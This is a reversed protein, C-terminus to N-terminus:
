YPKFCKLTTKSNQFVSLNLSCQIQSSSTLKKSAQRLILRHDHPSLKINRRTKKKIGYNYGKKIFNEIANRSRGITKAIQAIKIDNSMLAFIQARETNNLYKGNPM